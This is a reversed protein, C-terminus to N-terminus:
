RYCWRHRYGYFIKSASYITQSEKFDKTSICKNQMLLRIKWKETAKDNLKTTPKHDNILKKLYPRIM